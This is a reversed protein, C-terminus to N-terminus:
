NQKKKIENYQYMVNEPVDTLKINEIIKFKNAIIYTIFASIFLGYKIVERIINARTWGHLKLAASTMNNGWIDRFGSIQRLFDKFNDYIIMLFGSIFLLIMIYRLSTRIREKGVELKGSKETFLYKEGDEGIIEIVNNM